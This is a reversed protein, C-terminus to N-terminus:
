LKLIEFMQVSGTSFLLSTFMAPLFYEVKEGTAKIVKSLFSTGVSVVSKYQLLMPAKRRRGWLFIEWYISRNGWLESPVKEGAHKKRHRFLNSSQSFSKWMWSMQLTEGWYPNKSASDPSYKPQFVRCVSWMYLTLYQARVLPKGVNMVNLPNKGLISKEISFWSQVEASLRQVCKVHILNREVTSERIYILPQARVLSKAM